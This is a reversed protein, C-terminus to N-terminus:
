ENFNKIIENKIDDTLGTSMKTKYFWKWNDYNDGLSCDDLIAIKEPFGNKIIWQEIEEGRCFYLNDITSIPTIDIIDANIGRDKFCNRLFEIGKIRWSSSVVIKAGTKEVIENLNKVCKADFLFGYKDSTKQREFVKLFTFYTNTYLVGDIDLFIIKLKIDEKIKTNEVL